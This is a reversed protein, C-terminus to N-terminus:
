NANLEVEMIKDSKETYFKYTQNRRFLKFISILFSEFAYIILTFAIILVIIWYKILNSKGSLIKLTIENLFSNNIISSTM